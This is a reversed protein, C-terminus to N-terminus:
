SAATFCSRAKLATRGMVEFLDSDEAGIRSFSSEAVQRVGEWVQAARGVVLAILM